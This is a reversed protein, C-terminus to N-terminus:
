ILHEVQLLLGTWTQSSPAEAKDKSTEHKSTKAANPAIEDRTKSIEAAVAMEYQSNARRRQGQMCHIFRGCMLASHM